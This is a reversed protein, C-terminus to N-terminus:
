ASVAVLREMTALEDATAPRRDYGMACRRIAGHGIVPAINLAPHRRDVAAMYDAMSGWTLEFSCALDSDMGERGRGVLPAASSGCQGIVETTVGQRIKSEAGPHELISVDSHSHIDIFGPALAQGEADIVRKAAPSGLKGVAEIRDGTVAVEGHSWPNGSGDHIRANKILLDYM